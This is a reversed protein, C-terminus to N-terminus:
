YHGPADNNNDIFVMNHGFNLSSMTQYLVIVLLSRMSTYEVITQM